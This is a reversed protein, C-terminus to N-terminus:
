DNFLSKRNELRYSKGTMNFIECRYTLRDLIATTLAVDQLLETWEEFGKNSTIIISTQEHLNSILQFFMNAEEHSIPLYGIEDIIVLDSSYIRNIKSKSKRSIDQTKLYYMLRDMSTFSVKYGMEVAKYGLAIALHTKGVGPPGLFILNYLNDIWDMEILRNIQKKTISKQFETDFEEITKIVPFGAQKLRREQAKRNRQDIEGKLLEIILDHYSLDKKDADDIIKLINDRIYGLKLNRAYDKIIKIKDM